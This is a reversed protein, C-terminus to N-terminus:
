ESRIATSLCTHMWMLVVKSNRNQGGCADSYAQLSTVDAAAKDTCHRLLCSAIDQAGRSATSENWVAQQTSLSHVGLNFVCLQRCYYAENASLYPVPFVKQLDFTFSDQEPKTLGIEKDKSMSSRVNEVKRLHLDRESKIQLLKTKVRACDVQVKYIDCSKCTDKRPQHFSLNFRTNFVERYCWYKVPDQKVSKCKEVYLEYMKRINLNAALYQRCESHSRTYHSDNVPFSRIHQEVFQLKGTPIRQKMHDYKGRQDCLAIGGNLRQSRMLTNVRGSSVGLLLLFTSKCVTERRDGIQVSYSRAYSRPVAKRGAAHGANILERLLCKVAEEIFPRKSLTAARFM